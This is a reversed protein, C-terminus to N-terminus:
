SMNYSKYKKTKKNFFSALRKFGTHEILYDIQKEYSNRKLLMQKLGLYLISLYQKNLFYFKHPDIHEILDKARTEKGSHALSVAQFLYIIESLKSDIYHPIFNKRKKFIEDLYFLAEESHGTLMLSEAMILEFFFLLQYKEKSPSISYYYQRAKLLISEQELGFAEAYYLQSAFHRGAIFSPSSENIGISIIIRSHEELGNSNQFMWNQYCLLSNAFIQANNSKKEKIYYNLGKGYYSNLKDVHIFFEYYYLQGNETKAIERQFHDIVDPHHDLYKISQELLNIYTADGKHSLETKGLVLILYNLLSINEIKKEPIHKQYNTTFDAFSSYGCYKALIDLTYLSPQHDSKMLHFFRRLTNFSIKFQVRYSIDNALHFCDSSALIKRGFTIEIASRLDNLDKKEMEM